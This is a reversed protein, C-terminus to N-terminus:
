VKFMELFFEWICHVGKTKHSGLACVSQGQGHQRVPDWQVLSKTVRAEGKEPLEVEENIRNGAWCGKNHLSEQTGQKAGRTCVLHM